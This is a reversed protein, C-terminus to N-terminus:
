QEEELEEPTVISQILSAIEYSTLDMMDSFNSTIKELLEDSFPIHETKNFVNLLLPHNSSTLWVHRIEGDESEQLRIFLELTILRLVANMFMDHTWSDFEKKAIEDIEDQISL